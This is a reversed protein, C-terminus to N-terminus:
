LYRFLTQVKTLLVVDPAERTTCHNPTRRGIRPVRTRAGARSSGVHRPAAPGTLWPRQAQADPAQARCRSLGFCHSAQTGCFSIKQLHNGPWPPCNQDTTGRAIPLNLKPLLLLLFSMRPSALAAFAQTHSTCLSLLCGPVRSGVSGAGAAHQEWPM